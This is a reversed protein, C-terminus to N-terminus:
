KLTFRRKQGFFKDFWNNFIIVCPPQCEQL